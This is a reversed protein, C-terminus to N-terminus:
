NAIIPLYLTKAGESKMRLPIQLPPTFDYQDQVVLKARYEGDLLGSNDFM